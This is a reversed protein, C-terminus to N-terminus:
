HNRDKKLYSLAFVDDIKKHHVSGDEFTLENVNVKNQADYYEKKNKLIAETVAEYTELKMRIDPTNEDLSYDSSVTRTLTKTRINLDEDLEEKTNLIPKNKNIYVADTFEYDPSTETGKNVRTIQVLVSDSNEGKTLPIHADNLQKKLQKMDESAIYDSGQREADNFLRLDHEHEELFVDKDTDDLTLAYNLKHPQETDISSSNSKFGCSTLITTVLAVTATKIKDKIKM